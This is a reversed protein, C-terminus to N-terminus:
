CYRNNVSMPLAKSRQSITRHSTTTFLRHVCVHPILVTSVSILSLFSLGYSSDQANVQQGNNYGFDRSIPTTSGVIMWNHIACIATLTWASAIALYYSHDSIYSFFLFRPITPPFSTKKRYDKQAKVRRHPALWDQYQSSPPYLPVLPLM